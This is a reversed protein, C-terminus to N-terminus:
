RRSVLALCPQPRTVALRDARGRADWGQRYRRRGAAILIGADLQRTELAARLELLADAAYTIADSSGAAAILTGVTEIGAIALRILEMATEPYAEISEM